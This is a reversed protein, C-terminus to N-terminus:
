LAYASLYNFVGSLISECLRNQWVASVLLAEDKPNSLFGCEIIVSPYPACTLMFYDGTKAVRPKVGVESYLANLSTQLREALLKSDKNEKSYFVQAGRVSKLPYVNQHISLVLSPKEDLIIEKRREMDRKKFGKTAVGYLGEQTKRTLRTSFGVSTFKDHLKLSIDLNIDSEKVGTAVGSVGGDIGGHGADIVLKLKNENSSFVAIPQYFVSVCLLLAICFSLFVAFVGFISIKKM